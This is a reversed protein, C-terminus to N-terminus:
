QRLEGQLAIALTAHATAISSFAAGEAIGAQGASRLAPEAKHIHQAILHRQRRTELEETTPM